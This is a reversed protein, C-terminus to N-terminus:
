KMVEADNERRDQASPEATRGILRRLEIHKAHNTRIIWGALTLRHHRPLKLIEDYINM